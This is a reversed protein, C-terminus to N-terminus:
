VVKDPFCKKADDHLLQINQMTTFEKFHEIIPTVDLGLEIHGIFYNRIKNELTLPYKVGNPRGFRHMWRLFPLCLTKKGARRYKEHIYGEEGGFGRFNPNFGLWSDKRCAFLGLGQAPIEFPENNLNKARENTAWIGWMQSRWVLDFQTAINKLDDYLMPGQLLNGSDKSQDFFDILKKIAGSELLIHCDICMVYPTTALEFIKTRIATSNYETFPVYTVLQPFSYTLNKVATGHSSNPNNDIIIFEIDNLVESHYMRIAQITFYVGDYDDYTTFGITLKKM